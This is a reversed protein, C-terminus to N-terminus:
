HNSPAHHVIQSLVEEAVERKKEALILEVIEQSIFHPYDRVIQEKMLNKDNLLCTGVVTM